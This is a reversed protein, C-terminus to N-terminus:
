EGEAQWTPEQLVRALQGAREFVQEWADPDSELVGRMLRDFIRQLHPDITKGAEEEMISFAKRWDFAPRYSRTSTLADFVDAIQVIRAQLPIGEHALKTPYGSGDYHEHHHLVGDLADALQRVEKVIHYGRVPHEKIHDFEETTLKGEKNLVAERIGIKGVDHLLASWQLMQLDVKGLNMEKGLLVAYYAVRLSHGSTYSDKEDVANVLSRVMAVSMEGLERVLRHNRILDGCFTLLSEIVSMDSARFEAVDSGRAIVIACVFNVGSFVPGIMVQAVPQGSGSMGHLMTGAPPVEVVVKQEDRAYEIQARLWEDCPVGEGDCLARDGRIATERGGVNWGRGSRSFAPGVDSQKGPPHVQFVDQRHFSKGLSDVFLDLVESESRIGMAHSAIGPLRRTVEFVVGLQEYVSLLEEAMGAHEDMIQGVADSLGGVLPLVGDSTSRTGHLPPLVGPTAQEVGAAEELTVLHSKLMALWGLVDDPRDTGTLPNQFSSRGSM